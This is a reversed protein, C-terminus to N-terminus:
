YTQFWLNLRQRTFSWIYFIAKCLVTNSHNSSFFFFFFPLPNLYLQNMVMNNMSPPTPSFHTLSNLIVCLLPKCLPVTDQEMVVETRWTPEEEVEEKEEEERRGEWHSGKMIEVQDMTEEPSFGSELCGTWHKSPALRWALSSNGYLCECQREAKNRLIGKSATQGYGM